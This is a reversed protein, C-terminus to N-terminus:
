PKATTQGTSGSQNPKVTTGATQALVSGGAALLLALMSVGTMRMGAASDMFTEALVAGYVAGSCRGAEHRL